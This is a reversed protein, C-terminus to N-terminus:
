ASTLSYVGSCLDRAAREAVRRVHEDAHSLVFAWQHDFQSETM